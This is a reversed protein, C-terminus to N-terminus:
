RPRLRTTPLRLTLKSVGLPHLERAVAPAAAGYPEGRDIVVKWNNQDATKGAGPPVVFGTVQALLVLGDVYSQKKVGGPLLGSRGSPTLSPALDTWPWRAWAARIALRTGKHSGWPV